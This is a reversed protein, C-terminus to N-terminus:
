PQFSILQSDFANHGATHVAGTRSSVWSTTDRSGHCFRMAISLRCHSWACRSTLLAAEPPCTLLKDQKEAICLESRKWLRQICALTPMVGVELASPLPQVPLQYQAMTCLQDEIARVYTLSPLCFGVQGNHLRLEARMCLM